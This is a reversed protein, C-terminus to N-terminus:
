RRTASTPAVAARLYNAAQSIAARTPPTAAIPNLLIFDHIAGGYRVQTVPVGAQALKRAYAEGEARLVDHEGNVVLAQPLDRLQELSAQLPSATIESRRENAPLYADWFWRMTARTLWPGDAYREYTSTDFDASTVPYFLVQAALKPGGRQKAMLTLAAAMNGGVSEGFVAVKTPDAGLETANVVAWELATYAQENQVPYQAEPAPTYNVFVVVAHTLNALERVLREHTDKDGLIWGGGHLHVILPMAAPANAPKVIRIDVEGTPGGSIVRDEIEAPLLAGVQNQEGDSAEHDVDVRTQIDLLVARADEPTLEYLPPGGGGALEDLWKQTNPEIVPALASRNNTISTM